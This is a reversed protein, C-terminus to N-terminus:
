VFALQLVDLNANNAVMTHLFAFLSELQDTELLVIYFPNIPHDMKPKAVYFFVNKIIIGINIFLVSPLFHSKVDSHVHLAPALHM